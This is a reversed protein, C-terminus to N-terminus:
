QRTRTSEANVIWRYSFRVRLKRISVNKRVHQSWCRSRIDYCPGNSYHTYPLNAAFPSIDTRSLFACKMSFHMNRHFICLVNRFAYDLARFYHMNRQFICTVNCFAYQSSFFLAHKLPFHVNCHLIGTRVLFHVAYKTSFPM